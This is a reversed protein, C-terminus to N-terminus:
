VQPCLLPLSNSSCRPPCLLPLSNSSCRPCACFAFSHLLQLYIHRLTFTILLLYAHPITFTFLLLYLIYRCLLVLLFVRGGVELLNLAFLSSILM